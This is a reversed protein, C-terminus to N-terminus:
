AVDGNFTRAFALANDWRRELGKWLSSSEDRKAVDREYQERAVRLATLLQDPTNGEVAAKTKPGWKGDDPVNVARQLIRLAGTPGRNFVCDRLYSRIALNDSVWSQVVDTYDAVFEVAKAEAEAHKGANILAVLEDAEKKHYKDNIGAVEYTGGRDEPPLKYALLRGQKDRRAEFDVIKQAMRTRPPVLEAPPPEPTPEPEPIPEPTPEPGPKPMLAELARWTGPGVMGDVTLNGQESQFRRVAAETASGYDGDTMLLQQVLRVADGSSGRKLLPRVVTPPVPTNSPKTDSVGGIDWDRDDDENATNISVHMHATHNSAGYKTWAKRGNRKAYAEDGFIKENWIVYKVRPDKVRLLTATLENCDLGLQPYHPIDLAHVIGRADANHDSARAQHSEDGIWGFEGKPARPCKAQVQARLKGLGAAIRAM